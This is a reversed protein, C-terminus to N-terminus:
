MKRKSPDVVLTADNRSFAAGNVNKLGPQLYRSRIGRGLKARDNAHGAQAKREFPYCATQEQGADDVYGITAVLRGDSTGSSYLYRPHKLHPDDGDLWDHQVKADINTGADDDADLRFLGDDSAGCPVGDITAFSNFPFNTYRSMAFTELHATWAGPAGGGTNADDFYVYDVLNAEADLQVALVDSLTLADALESRPDYRAVPADTLTLTDAVDSEATSAALVADTFILSDALSMVTALRQADGFIATDAIVGIRDGLVADTLPLTDIVIPVAAADIAQTLTLTDVQDTVVSRQQDDTLTLTDVQNTIVSRQQADTLVMTDVLVAVRDGLAADTLALSDVTNTTVAGSQADTLVVTDIQNTVVSHQQDDTLTLTDAVSSNIQSLPADALIVIDVVNAVFTGGSQLADSFAVTDAQNTGAVISQQADTLVITDALTAPILQLLEDTLILNDVLDIVPANAIAVAESLALHDVQNFARTSAYDDTFVINEDVYSTITGPAGIPYDTAFIEVAGLDVACQGFNGDAGFVRLPGINVAADGVGGNVGVATVTLPALDIAAAAYNPEFLQAAAEVVIAGLGVRANTAGEGYAEVVLPGLTIAVSGEPGHAAAVIVPGLVVNAHGSLDSGSVILPGITLAATGATDAFALDVTDKILANVVRDGGLYLSCDAFIPDFSPKLSTYVLTSNQYYMVGTGLRVLTFVDDGAYSAAPTNEVGNEVIVFKGTFCYIGHEIETYGSGENVTNFGTIVGAASVPVSFQYIGNEPFSDISRASGNWGKNSVVTTVAPVAPIGPIPPVAPHHVVVDGGAYYGGHVATWGLVYIGMGPVFYPVPPMTPGFVFFQGLQGPNLSVSAESAFWGGISANPVFHRTSIIEDFAPIGPVAPVAPRAPTIVITRPLAKVLINEGTGAVDEPYAGTRLGSLPLNIFDGDLTGGSSNNSYDFKVYVDGPDPFSDEPHHGGVWTSFVVTGNIKATLVNGVLEARYALADGPTYTFGIGHSVLHQSGALNVDTIIHTAGAGNTEFRLVLGDMQDTWAPSGPTSARFIFDVQFAIDDANTHTTVEAFVDRTTATGLNLYPLKNSGVTDDFWLKGDGRLKFATLADNAGPSDHWFDVDPASYAGTEPTHGSLPGSGVFSDKLLDAM